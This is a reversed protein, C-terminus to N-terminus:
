GGHERTQEERGLGPRQDKATHGDAGEPDTVERGAPGRREGSPGGSTVAEEAERRAEQDGSEGPADAPTTRPRGGRSEDTGRREKEGM